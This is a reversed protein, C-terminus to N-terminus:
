RSPTLSWEGPVHAPARSVRERREATRAAAGLLLGAAVAVVTWAVMAVLWWFM